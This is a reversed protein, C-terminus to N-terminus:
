ISILTLAHRFPNLSLSIGMTNTSRVSPDLLIVPAMTRSATHITGRSLSIAHDPRM